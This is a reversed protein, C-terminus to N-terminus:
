QRLQPARTPARLACSSASRLRAPPRARGAGPALASLEADLGATSLGAADLRTAADLAPASLEADLGTADLATAPSAVRAREPRLSGGGRTEANSTSTNRPKPTSRPWTAPELTSSVSADARERRFTTSGAEAGDPAAEAEADADADVDSADEEAASLSGGDDSDSGVGVGAAARLVLGAAAFAGALELPLELLESPLDEPELPLEELECPPDEFDVAPAGAVFSGGILCTNTIM